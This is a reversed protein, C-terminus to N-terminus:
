IYAIALAVTNTTIKKKKKIQCNDVPDLKVGGNCQRKEKSQLQNGFYTKKTTKLSVSSVPMTRETSRENRLCVTPPGSFSGFTYLLNTRCTNSEWQFFDIISTAVTM